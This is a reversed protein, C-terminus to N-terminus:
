SKWNCYPNKILNANYYRPDGTVERGIWDPIEPVDNESKLEVEAIVLGQNEYLFEDIEWLFGGVEVFYRYKSIIPKECLENLIASADDKPIEYEFETRIMGKSKGKITLRAKEGSIRVRVVRDIETSLFGQQFFERTANEKFDDNVVLFKKEIEIAMNQFLIDSHLFLFFDRKEIVPSQLM